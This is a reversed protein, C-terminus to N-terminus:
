SAFSYWSPLLSKCILLWLVCSPYASFCRHLGTSAVPWCSGNASFWWAQLNHSPPYSAVNQPLASPQKSDWQHSSKWGKRRTNPVYCPSHPWCVGNRQPICANDACQGQHAADSESFGGPRSSQNWRDTASPLLYGCRSLAKSCWAQLRWHSAKLCEHRSHRSIGQGRNHYRYRKASPAVHGFPVVRHCRCHDAQRSSQWPWGSPLTWHIMPKDSSKGSPSRAEHPRPKPRSSTQSYQWWGAKPCRFLCAEHRRFWEIWLSLMM